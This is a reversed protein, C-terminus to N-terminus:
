PNKSASDMQRLARVREEIPPHTMFLRKLKRGSNGFPNTFFMHATADNATALPRSNLSQIKELAKALGEPYRTLLAGSADALLERRRSVAFHVLQGILPSLILLVIGILALVGAGRDSSRRGGFRGSYFFWRALLTVANVLMLVLMLYRIDFNRIHSLEHALVGELEENALKEIAGTTVAISAHKPDRGTAFANISPDTILYLKPMPTGAAMGLNEVLNYLYANDPKSIPGKAGAVALAVRDGAYYGGLTMGLAILLALFLGGLGYDTFEGIIWGLGAVFLVFFTLLLASKLKNRSIYDYTTPM